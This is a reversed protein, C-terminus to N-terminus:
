KIFDQLNCEYIKGGNSNTVFCSGASKALGEGAASVCDLLVRGGKMGLEQLKLKFGNLLFMLAATNQFEKAIVISSLLFKCESANGFSLIDNKTLSFDKLEGRRFKDYVENKLPYFCIYGIPTEDRLLVTYIDSNVSLFQKCLEFNGVDNDKYVTKDLAILQRLVEDNVNYIIRFKEM